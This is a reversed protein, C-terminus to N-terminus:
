MSQWDNVGICIFMQGIGATLPYNVAGNFTEPGLSDVTASTGGLWKVWVLRGIDNAVTCPPLNITGTAGTLMAIAQDPAMNITAASVVVGSAMIAKFKAPGVVDLRASPTSTGIGVDGMKTIRLRELPVTTGGSTTAFSLDSAHDTGTWAASATAVVMAGEGYGAGNHGSFLVKGLTDNLAVAMGNRSKEFRLYAPAPGADNSQITVGDGPAAAVVSLRTM